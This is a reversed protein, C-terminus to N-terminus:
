VNRETHNLDNIIKKYEKLLRQIIIVEKQTYEDLRVSSTVNTNIEIGLVAEISCGFINSLSILNDISPCRGEKESEWHSILTSDVGIADALQRQSMNRQKRLTRISAGINQPFM